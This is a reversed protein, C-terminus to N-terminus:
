LWRRAKSNPFGLPIPGLYGLVVWNAGYGGDEGFGNADFYRQRAAEVTMGPDYHTATAM